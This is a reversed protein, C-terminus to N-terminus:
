TRVNYCFATPAKPLEGEMRLLESKLALGGAYGVLKGGAGVVRHCPVVLAIPNRGVAHGIAQASMRERKLARATQRALEGYTTTRGYPIALLFTWVTKQFDTGRLELQPTFDPIRGHFYADLWRITEDLVAPRVCGSSSASAPVPTQDSPSPRGDFRLGVLARGDSTLTIDGHPSAYHRTFDMRPM